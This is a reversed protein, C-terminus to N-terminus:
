LGIGTGPYKGVGHLRQFIVFIRETFQPEIGIGNDRVAFRWESDVREASVHVQPPDTGHFKLGNGILNQFLQGLQLADGHVRPLPDHTVRGGTEALAAKLDALTTELVTECDVPRMPAGRSGVRSYALLGAVLNQMRRAGEVVFGIFDDADADLKGRYREALLQTFTSVARLPEQLDHSAVYAFQQLEANSRALDAKQRALAEEAQRRATIDLDMELIMPTGDADTFPFDHIEIVSGEPVSVEWHHPQGTELPRFSECFECPAAQGFCYEYCPRGRAEGFKERFARNAFAVRYDRTLLSIMAPLVELVHYFRQREAEVAQEARKRRSIDRAFLLFAGTEPFYSVSIEVDFLTGNKRRHRTEFRDFGKEMVQGIHASVEEPTESAELDAVRMCLLEERSYGSMRCYNSNVDLLKGEPGYRWFGDLTTTLLTTFHSAQLRIIEEARRRGSIDAAILCIGRAGEVEVPSLSLELPFCAQGAGRFSIVGGSRITLAHQLLRHFEAREEVEVFSALEAGMVQEIPLGLMRAFSDNCYTVTGDLLTAAGESMSEIFIRYPQEAGKLVYIQDGDPGAVVLADVEGARVARLADQADALQRRLDETQELLANKRM